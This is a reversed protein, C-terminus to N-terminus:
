QAGARRLGFRAPRDTHAAMAGALVTSDFSTRAPHSELERLVSIADSNGFAKSALEQAYTPHISHSGTFLYPMSPGWEYRKQLARFEEDVLPFLPEATLESGDRAMAALLQETRTNGAGRGMGGVSSDVITAGADVAALTNALALGLNDHAHFGIKRTFTSAIAEVRPRVAAPTLSGFSDALYLMDAGSADMFRAAEGLEAPSKESAQMLNVAVRYGLAKLSECVPLLDPLLPITAAIRVLDVPSQSRPGFLAAVGGSGSQCIAKGDIMVAFRLSLSKEHTRLLQDTCYRYAGAPGSSAASRYGMEVWTVGTRDLASLYRRVLADNFDWLNNYGGDRLTCDLIEIAM